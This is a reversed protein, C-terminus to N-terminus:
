PSQTQPLAEGASSFGPVVGPALAEERDQLLLQDMRQTSKLGPFLGSMFHKCVNVAEVVGAARLFPEAIQRGQVPQISAVNRGQFESSLLRDSIPNVLGNDLSYLGEVFEYIKRFDVARDIKRLLYDQPVLMDACLMEVAQRSEVEKSLM